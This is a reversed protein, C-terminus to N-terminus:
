PLVFVGFNMYASEFLHPVDIRRRFKRNTILDIAEVQRYIYDFANRSRLTATGV